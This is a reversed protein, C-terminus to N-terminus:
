DVGGVRQPNNPNEAQQKKEPIMRETKREMTQVTKSM